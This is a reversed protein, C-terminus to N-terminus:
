RFNILELGNEVLGFAQVFNSVNEVGVSWIEGGVRTVVNRPMKKVQGLTFLNAVIGDAM